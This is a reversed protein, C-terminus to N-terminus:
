CEVRKALYLDVPDDLVVDDVDDFPVIYLRNVWSRFCMPEIVSSQPCAEDARTTMAYKFV